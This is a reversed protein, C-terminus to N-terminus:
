RKQTIDSNGKSGVCGRAALLLPKVTKQLCKGEILKIFQGYPYAFFGPCETSNHIFNKVIQFSMIDKVEKIIQYKRRGLGLLV